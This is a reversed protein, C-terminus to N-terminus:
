PTALRVTAEGAAPGVVRWTDGDREVSSAARRRWWASVDSPLARWLTSDDSYRDLFRAYADLRASEIM